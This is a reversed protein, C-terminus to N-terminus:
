AIYALFDKLRCSYGWENDYWGYVKGLSGISNTLLSDVVVSHNNGVYDTSVLPERSFAIIGFLGNHAEQLLVDNLLQVSVEKKSIFTVEGISVVPTPVRFANGKIKNRLQPLVREIAGLAGTTSPVINIAAARSRRVDHVSARVDLLSQSNTYAHITSIIAQEVGFHKDLVYLLPTVANTTCSGLSIIHDRKTDYQQHNVGPIIMKDEGHAPATILVKRAGCNIHLEAVSRETARGSADVVWDIDHAAWPMEKFDTESHIAISYDDIYLFQDKYEINGAYIGLLSDFQTTYAITAPDDPGVNIAVITFKKQAEKDTLWTRLFNKGIRGYGNIAVRKM